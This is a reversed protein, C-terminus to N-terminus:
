SKLNKYGLQYHLHWKIHQLTRERSSMWCSRGGAGVAATKHRQTCPVAPRVPKWVPRTPQQCMPLKEVYVGNLLAEYKEKGLMQGITPAQKCKRKNARRHQAFLLLYSTCTEIWCMRNTSCKKRENMWENLITVFLNNFLKVKRKDFGQKRLFDISWSFMKNYYFSTGFYFSPNYKKGFYTHCNWTVLWVCFCTKFPQYKMELVSIVTWLLRFHISCLFFNQLFFRLCLPGILMCVIHSCLLRLRCLTCHLVVLNSIFACNLM